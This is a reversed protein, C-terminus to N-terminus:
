SPGSPSRPPRGAASGDPELGYRVMHSAEENRGAKQLASELFGAASEEGATVGAQGFQIEEDQDQNGRGFMTLVFAMGFWANRHGAAVEDRWIQVLSDGRDM